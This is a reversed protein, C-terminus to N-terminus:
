KISYNDMASVVEEPSSFQRLEKEQFVPVSPEESVDSLDSIVESTCATLVAVMVIAMRKLQKISLM